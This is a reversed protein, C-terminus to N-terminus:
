SSKRVIMDPIVFPNSLTKIRMLKTDSTLYLFGNNGFSLAMVEEGPIPVQGILKGDDSLVLLGCSGAAIWVNSGSDVSMGGIHSCGLSSNAFFSFKELEIHDLAGDITDDVDVFEDINAESGNDSIIEVPKTSEMVVQKELGALEEDIKRIYDNISESDEINEEDMYDELLLEDDNSEGMLYLEEELDELDLEDFDAEDLEDQDEEIVTLRRRSVSESVEQDEVIYNDLSNIPIRYIFIGSSMKSTVFVSELDSSMALGGASPIKSYLLDLKNPAGELFHAQRSESATIPRIRAAEPIRWIKSNVSKNSGCNEDNKAIQQEIFLLDGFSTYILDIPSELKRSSSMHHTALPTRAGDNELRVIRHEGLECIVLKADGADDLKGGVEVAMGASGIPEDNYAADECLTKNSRCGSREMYLTRGITIPGGGEEWRWIRNNASKDSILLYGRGLEESHRWVLGHLKSTNNENSHSTDWLLEIGYRLRKENVGHVNDQESSM